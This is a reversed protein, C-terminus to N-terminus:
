HNAADRPSMLRQIPANTDEPKKTKFASRFLWHRKLGQVFDDADTVTKSIGGLMNSNAQVQVNLNSTINALNELTLGITTSLQALNTDANIMLDNANTLATALQFESNTGLAWTALGGPERLQGSVVSLNTMAPQAAVVASNLNSTANAANDLVANLKNTLALIGPIASQVQSVMAQLQDSVPPTEKARLWASERDPSFNVYRRVRNDWSAVIRSY